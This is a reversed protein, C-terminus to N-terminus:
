ASEVRSWLGSDPVIVAEIRYRLQQRLDAPDTWGIHPYQRTDFHLKKIQKKRCTFIVPIGLGHAFGAEYYVSGRAGSGGQTFDAVVFRSRRIEAIIQDDIRRLSPERDVRFPKYGADEIGPKIGEWFLEEMSGDFWMAVFAQTSDTSELQESVTALGEVSLMTLFMGSTLDVRVLGREQLFQLLFRVEDVNVSESHILAKQGSADGHVYEVPQGIETTDDYLCQLLREARMMASLPPRSRAQEMLESTIAIPLSGNSQFDLFMTGLRKRTEPALERLRLEDNFSIAFSGHIPSTSDMEVFFHAANPSIAGMRPILVADDDGFVSIRKGSM